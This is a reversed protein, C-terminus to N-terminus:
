HFEFEIFLDCIQLLWHIMHWLYSLRSYYLLNRFIIWDDDDDGDMVLRTLPFVKLLRWVFINAIIKSPNIGVIDLIGILRYQDLCLSVDSVFADFCLDDDHKKGM